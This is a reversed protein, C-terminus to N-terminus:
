GCVRSSAPWGGWVARGREPHSSRGETPRPRKTRRRASRPQGDCGRRGCCRCNSTTPELIQSFRPCRFIDAFGRDCIESSTQETGMGVSAVLVQLAELTQNCRDPLLFSWKGRERDAVEIPPEELMRADVRSSANSDPFGLMSIGDPEDPVRRRAIDVDDKRGRVALHADKKRHEFPRELAMPAFAGIAVREPDPYHLAVHGKGEKEAAQSERVAIALVKMEEPLRVM